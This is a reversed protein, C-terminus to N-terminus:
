LQVGPILTNDVTGGAGIGLTKQIVGIIGWVSLVVFLAIIGGIMSNKAAEKDDPKLVYKVANWIFVLLIIAILIPIITNIARAVIDLLSFATTQAFVFFPFMLSTGAIALKKM